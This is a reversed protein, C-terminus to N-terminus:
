AWLGGGSVSGLLWVVLSLVTGFKLGASARSGGWPPSTAARVAFGALMLGLAVLGLAGVGRMLLDSRGQEDSRVVDAATSAMSRAHAQFSEGPKVGEADHEDPLRVGSTQLRGDDSRFEGYCVTSPGQDSGGARECRDLTFTGPRGENIVQQSDYYDVKGLGVGSVLALM